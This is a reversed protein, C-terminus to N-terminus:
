PAPPPEHKTRALAAALTKALGESPGVGKDDSGVFAAWTNAGRAKGVTHGGRKTIRM